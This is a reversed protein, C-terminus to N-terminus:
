SNAVALWRGSPTISLHVPNTGGSPQTNLYTLAGDDPDVAFSSVGQGRGGHVCYLFQQRPTLALFSPNTLGPLESGQTWAGSEPAVRFVSIGSGHGARDSTTYCGVYAYMESTM